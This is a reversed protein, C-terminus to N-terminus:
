RCTGRANKADEGELLLRAKEYSRRSIYHLLDPNVGAPLQATLADIREFMSLLNPKPEVKSVSKVAADLERLAELIAQEVSNMSERM